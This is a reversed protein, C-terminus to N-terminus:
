QQSPMLKQKIFIIKLIFGMPYEELDCSIMGLLGIAVTLTLKYINNM